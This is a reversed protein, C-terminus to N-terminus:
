RMTTAGRWSSSGPRPAMWKRWGSRGAAIRPAYDETMPVPPAGLLVLYGSYARNTIAIVEGLDSPGAARISCGPKAIQNM